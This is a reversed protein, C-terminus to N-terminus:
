AEVITVLLSFKPFSIMSKSYTHSELFYDLILIFFATKVNQLLRSKKIQFNFLMTTFRLDSILM